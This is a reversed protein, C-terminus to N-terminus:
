KSEWFKFNGSKIFADSWSRRWPNLHTLGVKRRIRIEGRIECVKSINCFIFFPLYEYLKRKFIAIRPSTRRSNLVQTGDDGGGPPSAWADSIWLMSTIFIPLCTIFSSVTSIPALNWHAHKFKATCRTFPRYDQPCWMKSLCKQLELHQVYFRTLNQPIIPCFQFLCAHKLNSNKFKARKGSM